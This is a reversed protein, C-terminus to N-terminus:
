QTTECGSMKLVPHLEIGNSRLVAIQCHIIHVRTTPARTKFTPILPAGDAAAPLILFGLDTAFRVARESRKEIMAM